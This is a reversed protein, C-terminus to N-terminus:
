EINERVTFHPFLAPQQFVIGALREQPTRWIGAASDCWTEGAWSITARQPRDLGAIQRLITTKGGGSPGFLVLVAGPDLAAELKPAVVFGSSFQQEAEIRLTAPLGTM